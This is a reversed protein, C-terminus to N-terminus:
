EAPRLAAMLCFISLTDRLQAFDDALGTPFRQIHLRILRIHPMQDVGVNLGISGRLIEGNPL